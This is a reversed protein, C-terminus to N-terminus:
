GRGGAVSGALLQERDSFGILRGSAEAQDSCSKLWHDENWGATEGAQTALLAPARQTEGVTSFHGSGGGPGAEAGDVGTAKRHRRESFRGPGRPVLSRSRLAIQFGARRFAGPTRQTRSCGIWVPRGDPAGHCPWSKLWRSALSSRARCRCGRLAYGCEFGGDFLALEIGPDESEPRIM